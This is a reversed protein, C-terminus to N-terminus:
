KEDEFMLPAEASAGLTDVFAEMLKAFKRRDAPPMTTIANMMKEQAPPPSNRIIRRGQPTLRLQIHRRDDPRTTRSVLSAEVLRQVVVSASSQDTVIRDALDNLSIGEEDVGNLTHLIFMQAATVGYRTHAQRDYIRLVRVLRRVATLIQKAEESDSRTRPSM